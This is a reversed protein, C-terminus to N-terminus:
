DGPFAWSLSIKFNGAMTPYYPMYYFNSQLLNEYTIRVDANGLKLKLFANGGDYRYNGERDNIFYSRTQPFYRAGYSKGIIAIDIGANLESSGIRLGYSIGAAAFFDPFLRQMYESGSFHAKGTANFRFNSILEMSYNMVVGSVAEDEATFYNLFVPVDDENFVPDAHIPSIIIRHFGELKFDIRTDSYKVGALILNNKETNLGLGEVPAPVRESFSYDAFFTLGDKLYLHAGAGFSSYLIGYSSGNRIGGFLKLYGPIEFNAAGYVAFNTGSFGEAYIDGPIDYYDILAGGTLTFNGPLMQHFSGKVGYYDDRYFINRMSDTDNIFADQRGRHEWKATSAYALATIGATSDESLYNGTLTLDHKIVKKRLEPYYNVADIEDYIDSSRGPDIGGNTSIGHNTFIESLSFSIRDSVNWRLLARVNWIDTDTNDNSGPTSLNRFGFTFNWERAFNQSFIGDSAVLDFAAQAYWIRTYPAKTNYRIEQFNILAGSSNGGLIVAESGTFIEAKEMFEVPFDSPNYNGFRIDNVPRGNFSFSIDRPLSGYVSIHNFHGFNALDLPYNNMESSLIDFAAVYNIDLLDYKTIEKNEFIGAQNISGHAYLPIIPKQATVSDTDAAVTDQKAASVTDQVPLRGEDANQGFVEMCSLFLASIFLFKM